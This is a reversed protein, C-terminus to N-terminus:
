QLPVGCRCQDSFMSSFSSFSPPSQFLSTIVILQGPGCAWRLVRSSKKSNFVLNVLTNKKIIIKM